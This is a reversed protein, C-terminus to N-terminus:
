VEKHVPTATGINVVLVVMVSWACDKGRVKWATIGCYRWVVAFHCAYTRSSTSDVIPSMTDSNAALAMLVERSSGYRRGKAYRFIGSM